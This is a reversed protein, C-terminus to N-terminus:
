DTHSEHSDDKRKLKRFDFFPDFLGAMVLLLLGLGTLCLLGLLLFGFITGIPGAGAKVLMYRFVALGQLLFLFVIVALVNGAVQQLPGALQDLADVVRELRGGRQAALEPEAVLRRALEHQARLHPHELVEGADAGSGEPSAARLRPGACASRRIACFAVPM